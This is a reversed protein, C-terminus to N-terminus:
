HATRLAMVATWLVLVGAMLLRADRHRRLLWMLAAALVATAVAEDLVGADTRPLLLDMVGAPLAALINNTAQSRVWSRVLRDAAPRGTSANAGTACSLSRATSGTPNAGRVDPPDPRRGHNIDRHKPTPEREDVREHDRHHHPQYRAQHKDRRDPPSGEGGGLRHRTRDRDRMQKRPTRRPQRGCRGPGADRALDDPTPRPAPGLSVPRRVSITSRGARCAPRTPAPAASVPWRWSPKACGSCSPSRPTSLASLRGVLRDRRRGCTVRGDPPQPATRRDRAPQFGLLHAARIRRVREVAAPTLAAPLRSDDTQVGVIGELDIGPLPLRRPATGTAVMLDDFPEWFTVQDDFSRVRVALRDLDIQELEHRLRVDIALEDRFTAPTRAILADLAPVMDGVLSPIGCASYSAYNGPDFAVISLADPDRRRRAQLAASMGAVDAGVVVLRQRSM